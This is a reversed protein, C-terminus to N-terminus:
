MDPKFSNFSGEHLFILVNQLSCSLHIFELYSYLNSFLNYKRMKRLLELGIYKLVPEDLTGGKM